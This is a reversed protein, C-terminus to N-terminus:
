FLYKLAFQINRGGSAGLIQGFNPNGRNSEPNRGIGSDKAYSLTPVQYSYVTVFSAEIRRTEARLLRRYQHLGAGDCRQDAHQRRRWLGSIQRLHLLCGADTRRQAKQQTVDSSIINYAGELPTYYEYRLGLNVQLRQSVRWDDQAYFGYNTTFNRKNTNFILLVRAPRDAIL